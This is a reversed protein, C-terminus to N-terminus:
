HTILRVQDAARGLALIRSRVEQLRAVDGVQTRLAVNVQQLLESYAARINDLQTSPLSDMIPYTFVLHATLLIWIISFRM